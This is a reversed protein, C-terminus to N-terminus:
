FKVGAAKFASKIEQSEEDCLLSEISRIALEAFEETEDWGITDGANDGGSAILCLCDMRFQSDDMARFHEELNRLRILASATKM